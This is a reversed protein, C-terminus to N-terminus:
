IASCNRPNCPNSPNCNFQRYVYSRFEKQVNIEPDGREPVDREPFDLISVFGFVDLSYSM